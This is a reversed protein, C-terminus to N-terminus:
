IALDLLEFQQDAFELFIGGGLIGTGIIGGLGIGTGRGPWACALLWDALWQRLVQRALGDGVFWGTAARAAAARGEAPDALVLALHEFVDRGAELHDTMEARLQAAAGALGDHLRRHRR